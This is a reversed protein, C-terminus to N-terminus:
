IKLIASIEVKCFQLLKRKRFKEIYKWIGLSPNESFGFYTAPL